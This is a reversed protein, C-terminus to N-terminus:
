GREFLGFMKGIIDHSFLLYFILGLMGAIFITRLTSGKKDINYVSNYAKTRKKFGAKMRKAFDDPNNSGELEQRAREVRENFEEKDEDYYRPIYNFRRNTTRGFRIRPFEM